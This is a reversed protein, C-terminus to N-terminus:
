KKASNPHMLDILSRLRHGIIIEQATMGEVAGFGYKLYRATRMAKDYSGKERLLNHSAIGDISVQIVNDIFYNHLSSFSYM